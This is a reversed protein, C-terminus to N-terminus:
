LDDDEKKGKASKVVPAIEVIAEPLVETGNPLLVEWEAPVEHPNQTKRRREGSPDFWNRALNIRM